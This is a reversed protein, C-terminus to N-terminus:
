SCCECDDTVCYIKFEDATKKVHDVYKKQIANSPTKSRFVKNLVGEPIEQEITMEGTEDNTTSTPMAHVNIEGSERDMETMLIGVVVDHTPNWHDLTWTGNGKMLNHTARRIVFKFGGIEVEELACIAENDETMKIGHIEYLAELSITFGYIFYYTNIM